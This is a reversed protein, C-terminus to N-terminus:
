RRPGPCELPKKGTHFAASSWYRVCFHTWTKRGVAGAFQQEFVTQMQLLFGDPCWDTEGLWYRSGSSCSCSESVYTNDKLTILCLYIKGLQFSLHIVVAGSFMSEWMSSRFYTKESEKKQLSRKFQLQYQTRVSSSMQTKMIVRYFTPVFKM